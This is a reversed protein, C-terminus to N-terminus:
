AEGGAVALLETDLGALRMAERLGDSIGIVRAKGSPDALLKHMQCLIQIGAGDCGEVATLDIELPEAACLLPYLTGWTAAAEWISLAGNIRVMCQGDITENSVSM